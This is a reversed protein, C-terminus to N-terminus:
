RSAAARKAYRVMLAQLGAGLVALALLFLFVVAMSAHQYIFGGAGAGLIQGFTLTAEHIAMRRERRVSGTVGHFVSSTNQYAMVLGLLALAPIFWALSRALPMLAMLVALVAQGLLIPWITFHWFHTRGMLMFGLAVFLARILLLLGVQSKSSGLHEQAYVPFITIMVSIAAYASFVGVWAPFRLHTSADRSLEGDGAGEQRDRMSVAGPAPPLKFIAVACALFLPGALALPLAPHHQALLGTLYPSIIVGSSWSLNYHAIVRNLAKGELGMSLWGMLPPWFLSFAYGFLGYLVFTLPLSPVLRIGLAIGGLCSAAVLLSRQPSLRGSLPRLLSCGLFYMLFQCASLSGIVGAPAQYFDRLYFVLGLNVMGSGLAMVLSIPYLVGGGQLGRLSRRIVSLSSM